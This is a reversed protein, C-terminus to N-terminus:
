LTDCKLEMYCKTICYYYCTTLNVRCFAADGGCATPEIANALIRWHAGVVLTITRQRVCTQGAFLTKNPEILKVPDNHM